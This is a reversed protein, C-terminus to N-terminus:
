VIVLRPKFKYGPLDLKGLSSWYRYKTPTEWLVLTSFEFPQPATPYTAEGHAFGVPAGKKGRRIHAFMWFLRDSYSYYKRYLDRDETNKPPLPCEPIGHNELINKVSDILSTDYDTGDLFFAATKQFPFRAQDDFPPIVSTNELGSFPLPIIVKADFDSVERKITADFYKFTWRRNEAEGGRFFLINVAHDKGVLEPGGEKAKGLAIAIPQGKFKCRVESAALFAFDECDWIKDLYKEYGRSQNTIYNMVDTPSYRPIEEQFHMGTNGKDVKRIGDPVIFDASM